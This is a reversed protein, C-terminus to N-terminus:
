VFMVGNASPLLGGRLARLLDRTTLGFAPVLTPAADRVAARNHRSDALVLIMRDLGLAEQKLLVSRVQAQADTLRSIAELGVSGATGSIVADV